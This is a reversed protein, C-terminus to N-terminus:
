ADPAGGGTESPAAKSPSWLVARDTACMCAPRTIRWQPPSWRQLIDRWNMRKNENQDSEPAGWDHYGRAGWIGVPTLFLVFFLKVGSARPGLCFRPPFPPHLALDGCRAGPAGEQAAHVSGHVAYLATAVANHKPGGWEQYACGGGNNKTGGMEM